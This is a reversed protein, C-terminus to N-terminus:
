KNILNRIVSIADEQNVYRNHAFMLHGIAAITGQSELRVYKVYWDNNVMKTYLPGERFTKWYPQKTGIILKFTVSKESKLKVDYAYDRKFADPNEPLEEPSSIKNAVTSEKKRIIIATNDYLQITSFFHRAVITWSAESFTSDATLPKLEAQIRYM